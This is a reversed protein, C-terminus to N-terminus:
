AAFLPLQSVSLLALTGSGFSWGVAGTAYGFTRVPDVTRADLVSEVAARALIAPGALLRLFLAIPVLHPGDHNGLAFDFRKATFMETCLLLLGAIFAGTTFAPLFASFDFM